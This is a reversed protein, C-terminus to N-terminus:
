IKLVWKNWSFIKHLFIPLFFFTQFAFHTTRSDSSLSCDLLALYTMKTQPVRWLAKCVSTSYVHLCTNMCLVHPVPLWEAMWKHGLGVGLHPLPHQCACSCCSRCLFIGVSLQGMSARAISHWQLENEALPSPMPAYCPFLFTKWYERERERQSTITWMTGSCGMGSLSVNWAVICENGLPCQQMYVRQHCWQRECVILVTPGWCRNHNQEKSSKLFGGLCSQYAGRAVDLHDAVQTSDFGHIRFGRIFFPEGTHRELWLVSTTSATATRIGREM